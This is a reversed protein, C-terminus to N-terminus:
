SPASASGSRTNASWCSSSPSSSPMRASRSIRRSGSSFPKSGSSRLRAIESQAWPEYAFEALPPGRWLSLAERLMANAEAPAAARADRRAARVAAPRVVGDARLEYASSVTRIVDRGLARRLQSVYTQLVKAASAPALGDWLEEILRDRSRNTRGSSCSRSFRGRSRADLPVVRGKDIAELPGLIRFEM